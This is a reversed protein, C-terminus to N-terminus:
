AFNQAEKKIERLNLFLVPPSDMILDFQWKEPM